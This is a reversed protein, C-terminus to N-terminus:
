AVDASEPKTVGEVSGGAEKVVDNVIQIVQNLFEQAATDLVSSISPAAVNYIQAMQKARNISSGTGSFGLATQWSTLHTTLLRQEALLHIKTFVSRRIENIASQREDENAPQKTWGAPNDLWRSISTQLQRVLDAVPRLGNYENDWRNAIRRCLAKVRGWHEKPLGEYYSLGLRGLWPNKFGDTADRLALELRAINYIPTAVSPEPLEASEQMREMLRQMNKIFGPPISGTARNLGGLYFDNSGLQRELIETVPAGLSDRLSAIANGISAHVHNRKQEYNALNDGEVQDFHTFAVALKHGHGSSGASRLLELPAAQMPSQANDVLLIMDVESFRKTVKTSVSTAEKASHGLGEGDLFVLRRDPNQLDMAAPQFPGRVRIGNVLPTLLRGFQQGHNSAFWRVQQLFAQRNHGEFYWLTPWNKGQYEFDGAGILDFREIIADMIDLSLQGFDRNDYLANTFYDLWDQRRNGNDLGQFDGQEAATQGSVEEAIRRIRAVYGALRENNSTLEAGDVIEDDPLVDTASTEDEHGYDMQYQDDPEKGPQEQQWSGLLYSLRFRRERHELLAAAIGSDAQGHIVSSCAEELCEDVACRVEHETMFTVAAVYAEYSDAATIIEIDATTTKATSTSPFRDEKHRSGILQRLLTTKGAGTTGVLMVRAYGDEPGPLPIIADRQDRANIKGVEIGDFFAAVAISDFRREAEARRDLSWWSENALLMNIQDVLHDAEVDHTTGLGRRIKLGFKGRADSRRPHSFTVSWGPRNNSRTKTATYTQNTM